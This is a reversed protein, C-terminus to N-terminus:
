PCLFKSLLLFLCFTLKCVCVRMCVCLNSINLFVFTNKKGKEGGPLKPIREQMTRTSDM